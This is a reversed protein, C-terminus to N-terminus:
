RSTPCRCAAIGSCIMEENHKQGPKLGAVIEGMEAHLTQRTLMGADNLHQRFAGYPGAGVQEWDDVVLKAMIDILSLELASM